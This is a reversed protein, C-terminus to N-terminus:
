ASSRHSLSGRSIAGGGGGGGGGGGIGGAYPPTVPIGERRTGSFNEGGASSRLSQGRACARRRRARALRASPTAPVRATARAGALVGISDRRVYRM